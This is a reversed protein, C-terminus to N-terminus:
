TQPSAPSGDDHAVAAARAQALAAALWEPRRSSLLWYPTPDQPDLVPVRVGRRLWGRLLLYARADLEPGTARRMTGADLLQAPGVLEVPIRARGATLVGDAVQLTATSRVLLLLTAVAGVVAGALAATRGVPLFVLTLVLANAPVLAWVAPSPWLREHYRAPVGPQM